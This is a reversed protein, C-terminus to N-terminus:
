FAGGSEAFVVGCSSLTLILVNLWGGTVVSCLAGVQDFQKRLKPIFDQMRVRIEDLITLGTLEERSLGKRLGVCIDM